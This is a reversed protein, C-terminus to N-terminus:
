AIVEILFEVGLYPVGGIEYVGYNRASVVRSTQVTGSLSADLAIALPVSSAGEYAVYSDLLDQAADEQVSGTVIKVPIQFRLNTARFTQDYEVIEPQGVYAAPPIVSDAVKAYVNLSTILKLQNAIAERIATVSPM